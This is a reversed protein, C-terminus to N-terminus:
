SGTVYSGGVQILTGNGHIATNTGAPEQNGQRTMYYLTAGAIRAKVEGYAASLNQAKALALPAETDSAYPIGTITSTAGTGLVNIHM